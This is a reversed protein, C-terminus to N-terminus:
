RGPQTSVKHRTEIPDAPAKEAQMAQKTYGAGGNKDLALRVAPIGFVGSTTRWYKM